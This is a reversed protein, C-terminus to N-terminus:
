KESAMNEQPTEHAHKNKIVRKSYENEKQSSCVDKLNCNSFM